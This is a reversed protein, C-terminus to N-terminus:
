RAAKPRALGRESTQIFEILHQIEASGGCKDRIQEAAAEVTLNSRFLLRYAQVVAKIVEESKGNRRMGIKNVSVPVAPNGEVLCFPAVDQVVKATAGVMAMCGIKVFQHVGGVGGFVAHEQIVVHGAIQTANSMIVHDGVICDHAIHSYALIHCHSGVITRGGDATSANVTVYERFTSNDGIEVYATGGAYKLDQTQKGICAFSGAM